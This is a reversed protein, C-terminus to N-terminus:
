EVEWRKWDPTETIEVKEGPLAALPRRNERGGCTQTRGRPRPHLTHDLPERYFLRPRHRHRRKTPSRSARACISSTRTASATSKWASSVIAARRSGAIRWSSLCRRPSPCVKRRISRRSKSGGAKPGRRRIAAAMDGSGAVLARPHGAERLVRLAADVAYGKALSGLDLRMEPALLEVTRAASDLRIKKWGSRALADAVHKESPLERRRRASRWVTTLPGCTVDFAGGTREALRQSRELVAWLPESAKVKEGRGSGRFLEVLESDQEYDSLIANLEEVKAFAADAAAKAAEEDKAYLTVRFPVGMEAKEFAFKQPEAASWDIPLLCIWACLLAARLRFAPAFMGFSQVVAARKALPHNM